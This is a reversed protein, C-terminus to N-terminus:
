MLQGVSQQSQKLQDRHSAQFSREEKYSLCTGKQTQTEWLFMRGLNLYVIKLKLTREFGRQTRTYSLSEEKLDMLLYFLFFSGRSIM